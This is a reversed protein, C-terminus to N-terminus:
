VRVLQKRINTIAEIPVLATTKPTPIYPKLEPLMTELQKYTNIGSLVQRLDDAFKQSEIVTEQYKDIKKELAKNVKIDKFCSKASEIPYSNNISTIKYKNYKLFSDLHNGFRPWEFNTCVRIYGSDIMAQTIWKPVTTEIQKEVMSKISERIEIIKRDFKKKTEAEVITDKVEMSIKSM